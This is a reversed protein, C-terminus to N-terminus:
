QSLADAMLHCKGANWDLTFSHIELRKRNLQLHVNVLLALPKDLSGLVPKHDTIVIFDPIGCLYRDCKQSGLSLGSIKRQILSFGFGFGQSANTMLETELWINLSRVLAPSTLIVRAQGSKVDHEETWKK